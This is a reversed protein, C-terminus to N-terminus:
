SNEPFLEVMSTYSPGLYADLLSVDFYEFNLLFIMTSLKGAFVSRNLILFLFGLFLHATYEFYM